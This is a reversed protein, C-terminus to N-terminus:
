PLKKGCYPCFSFDGPTAKGCYPCFAGKDGGPHNVLGSAGDPQTGFRDNLPDAEEGSDTIDYESYRKKGFANIFMYIAQGLGVATFIAGFVAMFWIGAKVVEITWGIGGIALGVCMVGGLVSPARGPKVSKM